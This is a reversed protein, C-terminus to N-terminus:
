QVAPVFSAPAKAYRKLLLRCVDLDFEGRVPAEILAALEGDDRATGVWHWDRVVHVDIREGDSSVERVLAPGRFPWAPIAEAALAERLRADHAEIAEAGVCASDCKRLQRAFCPGDRREPGPADLV